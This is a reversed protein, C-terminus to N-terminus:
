AKVTDGVSVLVSSVTGDVAFGETVQNVRQVSGTLNLRQEVSGTTVSTTRYTDVPTASANTRVVATGAGVLIAVVGIPIVRRVWTRRQFPKRPEPVPAM